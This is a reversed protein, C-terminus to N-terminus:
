IQVSWPKLHWEMKAEVPHVPCDEVGIVKGGIMSVVYVKHDPYKGFDPRQVKMYVQDDQHGDTHFVFLTGARLQSAKIGVSPTQTQKIERFM